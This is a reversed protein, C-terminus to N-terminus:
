HLKSWQPITSKFPLDYRRIRSVIFWWPNHYKFISILFDKTEM